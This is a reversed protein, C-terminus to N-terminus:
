HASFWLNCGKKKEIQAEPLEVCVGKETDECVAARVSRNLGGPDALEPKVSM